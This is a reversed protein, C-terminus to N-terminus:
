HKKCLKYLLKDYTVVACEKTNTDYVQCGLTYICLTDEHFKFGYSDKNKNNGLVMQDLNLGQDYYDLEVYYTTLTDLGIVNNDSTFEVQKGNERTYTGSFLFEEAVPPAENIETDRAIRIYKTGNVYMTDKGTFKMHETTDKCTLFDGWFQYGDGEPTIHIGGALHFSSIFIATDKNRKPFSFMFADDQADHPSKLRKLENIYKECVWDGHLYQKQNVVNNNTHVCSAMCLAFLALALFPKM